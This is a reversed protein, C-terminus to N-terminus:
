ETNDCTISTMDDLDSVSKVSKRTLRGVLSPKSSKSKPNIIEDVSAQRKTTSKFNKSNKPSKIDPKQKSRRGKSILSETEPANGNEEYKKNSTEKNGNEDEQERMQPTGPIKVQHLTTMDTDDKAVIRTTSSKRQETIDTAELYM